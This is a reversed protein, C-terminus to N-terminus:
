PHPKACGAHAGVPIQDIACVPNNFSDKVIVNHLRVFGTNAVTYTFWLGTAPGIADGDEVEKVGSAADLSAAIISDHASAGPDVNEWARLDIELKPDACTGLAPLKVVRSYQSSEPQDAFTTSGQTQVRLYGDAAPLEPVRVVVDAGSTAPAVGSVSGLYVEATRLATYYFDITAPDKPSYHDSVTSDKRLTVWLECTELNLSPNGTQVPPYWTRINRNAFPTDNEVMWSGTAYYEERDTTTQTKTNTGFTNRRITVAGTDEMEVTSDEYGDFYNDEIWLNSGTADYSSITGVGGNWYVARGQGTAGSNDFTNDHIYNKGALKEDTPLVITAHSESSGTKVGTFTNHHIDIGKCNAGADSMDIVHTFSKTFTKFTSNEVVFGDLVAGSRVAIASSECGRGSSPTCSTSGEVPTNDVTVNSITVNSIGTPDSNTSSPAVTIASHASPGDAGYLRGFTYNRITINNAGGRIWVGRENNYNDTQISTGGDLTSGSSKPSFVFSTEAPFINSFNFLQVNAADIFFGGAWNAVDEQASLGLRNDLDITMTRKIHFYAGNYDLYSVKGTETYMYTSTSAPQSIVGNTISPAVAIKVPQEPPTANAEEIAARLSCNGGDGASAKCEGDGPKADKTGAAVTNVELILTEPATEAADAHLASPAVAMGIAVASAAVLAAARVALKSGASKFPGDPRRRRHAGSRRYKM